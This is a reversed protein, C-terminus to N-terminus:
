WQYSVFTLFKKEIFDAVTVTDVWKFASLKCDDAILTDLSKDIVIALFEELFRLLYDRLEKRHVEIKPM